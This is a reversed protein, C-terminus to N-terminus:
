KIVMKGNPYQIDSLMYGIFMWYLFNVFYFETVNSGIMQMCLGLFVFFGTKVTKNEFKSYFFILGATGFLFFLFLMGLVGTESIIHPYDGDPCPRYPSGFWTGIRSIQGVQGVGTGLPYKVLNDFGGEWQDGREVMAQEGFQDQYRDMLSEIKFVGSGILIGAFVVLLFGRSITSEKIKLRGTKIKELVNVVLVIIAGLWAGRQQAFVLGVASIILILIDKVSKSNFFLCTFCILTLSAFGLSGSMSTMREGFVGSRFLESFGAIYPYWPTLPYIFIAFFVHIVAILKLSKLVEELDILYSFFYGTMPIVFMYIGMFVTIPASPLFMIAVISIFISYLIFTLVYKDVPRWNIKKQNTYFLVFLLPINLLMPNQNGIIKALGPLLSYALLLFINM